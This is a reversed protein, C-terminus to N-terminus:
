EAAPTEVAAVVAEEAKAKAPAKKVPAKKASKKAAKPLRVASKRSLGAKALAKKRAIYLKRRRRKITKNLQQGM